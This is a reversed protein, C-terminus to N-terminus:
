FCLKGVLRNCLGGFGLRKHILTFFGASIHEASIKRASRAMRKGGSGPVDEWRGRWVAMMTVFYALMRRGCDPDLDTEAAGIGEDVDEEADEAVEGAKEVRPVDDRFVGLRRVLVLGQRLVALASAHRIHVHLRRLVLVVVAAASALLLLKLSLLLRLWVVARLTTSLTTRLGRLLRLLLLLLRRSWLRLLLTNSSGIALTARTVLTDRGRISLDNSSIM